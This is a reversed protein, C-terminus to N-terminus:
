PCLYADASTAIWGRKEDESGLFLCHCARVWIVGSVIYFMFCMEKFKLCVCLCKCGEWEAGLTKQTRKGWGGWGLENLQKERYISHSGRKLTLPHKDSNTQSVNSEHTIKEQDDTAGFAPVVFSPCCLGLVYEGFYLLPQRFLYPVLYAAEMQQRAKPHQCSVSESVVVVCCSAVPSAWLCRAYVHNGCFIPIANWSSPARLGVEGGVGPSLVNNCGCSCVGCPGTGPVSPSTSPLLLLNLVVLSCCGGHLRWAFHTVTPLPKIKVPRQQNM